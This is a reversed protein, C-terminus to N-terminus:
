RKPAHKSSPGHMVSLEIAPADATTAHDNISTLQPVSLASRRRGMVGHGNRRHPVSLPGRHRDMVDSAVFVEKAVELLMDINRQADARIHRGARDSQQLGDKDEKDEAKKNV